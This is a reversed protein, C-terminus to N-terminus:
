PKAKKMRSIGGMGKDCSITYKNVQDVWGCAKYTRLKALLYYCEAMDGPCYFVMFVKIAEELELLEEWNGVIEFLFKTQNISRNTKSALWEIVQKGLMINAEEQKM